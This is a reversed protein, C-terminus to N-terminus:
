NDSDETIKKKKRKYIYIGLSGIAILTFIGSVAWKCTNYLSEKHNLENMDLIYKIADYETAQHLYVDADYEVSLSIRKSHLGESAFKFASFSFIALIASAIFSILYVKTNM